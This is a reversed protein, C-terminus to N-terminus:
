RNRCVMALTSGWPWRILSGARAEAMSLATFFANMLRGPREEMERTSPVKRAVLRTAAVVPFLLCQYYRTEAVELGADRVVRTLSKRTYRRLHGAAEDRHSWLWPMAPVTLILAGGPVLCRRMEDLVKGDDAHELIDLLIAVEFSANRLPLEAGDGQLLAVREDRMAVERLREPRLDIGVVRHGARAMMLANRGSGCGVELVRLPSVGLHRRWLQAVLERRGAFWFHWRELDSVLELRDASFAARPPTDTAVAGSLRPNHPDLKPRM